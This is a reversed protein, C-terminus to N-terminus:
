IMESLIQANVNKVDFNQEAFERSNKGMTAILDPTSIFKKMAAELLNSNKIPVLFGNVGSRVTERCGPTNTTIIPKGCAMAELIIRSLGERYSPLVFVSSAQLAPRVDELEELYEVVGEKKWSTMMVRSISMPNSDFPGAIQFRVNPNQSKIKRAAEIFEFIGKDRLLRAILLFSIEKADSKETIQFKQLNVGSGATIKIRAKSPLLKLDSFHDRDDQNHFFIIENKTLALRYLARAILHVARDKISRPHFAYGLGTIMSAIRIKRSALRAALSGFIVPKITTCFIWDPKTKKFFLFLKFFLYLDSFPNLGTRQLPILFIRVGRSKLEEQAKSNGPPICVTVNMQAALASEILDGRLSLITSASNHIFVFETKVKSASSIQM